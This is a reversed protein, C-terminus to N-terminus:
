LNMGLKLILTAAKALLRNLFPKSLPLSHPFLPNIIKSFLKTIVDSNVGSFPHSVKDLGPRLGAQRPRSLFPSSYKLAHSHVTASHNM